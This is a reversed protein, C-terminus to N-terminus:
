NRWYNNYTWVKLKNYLNWFQTEDLNYLNIYESVDLSINYKDYIVAAAALALTDNSIKRFRYRWNKDEIYEDIICKADEKFVKNCHGCKKLIDICRSAINEEGQKERLVNNIQKLRNQYIGRLRLLENIRLKSFRKVEHLRKKQVM